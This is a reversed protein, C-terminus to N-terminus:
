QSGELGLKRVVDGWKERESRIYTRIDDVPPTDYPILGITEIRQRMEPAAMIRKM